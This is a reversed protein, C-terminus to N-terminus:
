GVTRARKRRRRVWHNLSEVMVSFALSFYLYGKPIKFGLGDAILFLGIVLLFSLALMKITPHRLVFDSLPKSAAMMVGIAVVIALAMVWLEDVMGVATIVSDLSFVIDLLGIQIVVAALTAAKSRPGRKRAPEGEVEDHIEHTAKVMLFLGGAVLIVSRWSIERGFVSFLPTTLTVIWAIAGLLAIRTLLAFALGLRRALARRREPLRETLIAIFLLNDIGLVVELAALVVFSLWTHPDGIGSLSLFDM